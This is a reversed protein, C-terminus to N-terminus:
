KISYLTCVLITRVQIECHNKSNKKELIIKCSNIMADKNMMFAMKFGEWTGEMYLTCPINWCWTWHLFTHLISLLIRYSSLSKSQSRQARGGENECIMSRFLGLSWGKANKIDKTFLTQNFISQLYNCHNHTECKYRWYYVQNIGLFKNQWIPVAAM